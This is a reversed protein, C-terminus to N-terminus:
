GLARIEVAEEGDLTASMTLATQKELFSLTDPLGAEFAEPQQMGISGKLKLTFKTSM